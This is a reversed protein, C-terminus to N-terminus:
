WLHVPAPQATAGGWGAGASAGPPGSGAASPPIPQVPPQPQPPAGHPKQRLHPPQRLVGPCGLCAACRGCDAAAAAPGLRGAPRLLCPAPQTGPPSLALLPLIRGAGLQPGVKRPPLALPLLPPPPLGAGADIAVWGRQLLWRLRLLVALAAAAPPAAADLAAARQAASAAGTAAGASVAQILQLADKCVALPQHLHQPAAAPAAGTSVRFVPLVLHRPPNGQLQPGRPAVQRQQGKGHEVQVAPVEHQKGKFLQHTPLRQPAHSLVLAVGVWWNALAVALCKVSPM